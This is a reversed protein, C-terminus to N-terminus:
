SNTGTIENVIASHTGCVRFNQAYAFSDSTKICLQIQDGASWGTIDQSKTVYADSSDTREIGVATGNRYIRGSATAPSTSMLDYKIRLTQNAKVNAGLTITKKLVFSTSNTAVEADHSLIVTDSVSLYAYILETARIGMKGDVNSYFDPLHFSGDAALTFGDASFGDTVKKTGTYVGDSNINLGGFNGSICVIEGETLDFYNEGDISQIKGARIQDGHIYTMGKAFDFDRYGDTVAFLMGVLFHYYGTEQEVTIQTAELVWNGTLVSKSCRAFLYYVSSATLYPMDSPGSIAWTYGLGVIQIQLHVLSGASVYLRNVDGLYNPKITVNSLWFDSSKTGVALYMTEISLPKIRTGDFYGDTDFILDKMQNQRVTNRRALEASRKEVFTTEKITSIAAKVIREQLTYPVFDAITAKIKFPNVLPYEVGSVRILANVGLDADTVTVRDGADLVLAIDKAHKPDLEVSYVVMPICNEDLFAQTATLLQAEADDIYSQPMSINVLTYTDNIAPAIPSGSNYRPQVYGDTDTYPNFYIRKTAADYKWIECEVGALDGTKFVITATQGEILYSNIDFDIASDVVYSTNPNFDTGSDGADFVMNVASLTGTRKPYINEDTFDGEITGYVDDNKTLFPNGGSDFIL